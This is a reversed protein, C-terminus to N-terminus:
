VRSCCLFQSIVVVCPQLHSTRSVIKNNKVTCLCVIDTVDIQIKKAQEVAVCMRPVVSHLWQRLCLTVSAFPASCVAPQSRGPVSVMQMKVKYNLLELINLTQYSAVYAHNHTHGEVAGM